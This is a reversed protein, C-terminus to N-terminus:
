NSLRIVLALAVVRAARTRMSILVGQVKAMVVHSRTTVIETRATANIRQEVTRGVTQSENDHLALKEM